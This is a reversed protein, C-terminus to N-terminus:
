TGHGGIWYRADSVSQGHDKDVRNWLFPRQQTIDWIDQRDFSGHPRRAAAILFLAPFPLLFPCPRNVFSLKLSLTRTQM